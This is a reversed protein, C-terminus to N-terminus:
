TGGGELIWVKVNREREAGIGILGCKGNMECEGGGLSMVREFRTYCRGASGDGLVGM